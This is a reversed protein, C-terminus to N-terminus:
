LLFSLSHVFGDNFYDTNKNIRLIFLIKLNQNSWCIVM